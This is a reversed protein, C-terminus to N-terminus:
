FLAQSFLPFRDVHGSPVPRRTMGGAEVKGGLVVTADGGCNQQNVYHNKDAGESARLRNIDHHITAHGSLIM